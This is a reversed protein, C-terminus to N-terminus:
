KFAPLLVCPWVPAGPTAAPARHSECDTMAASQAGELSPHGWVLAYAGDASIAAARYGPRTRLDNLYTSVEFTVTAANDSPEIYGTPLIEAIVRCRDNHALCEALAIERASERSNTGMAYGYGGSKSLAFASFYPASLFDGEWAQRAAESLQPASIQLLETGAGYTIVEEIPPTFDARAGAAAVLTVVLALPVFRTM